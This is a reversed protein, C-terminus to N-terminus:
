ENASYVVKLAPRNGAEEYESSYVHIWLVRPASPADNALVLFGNNKIEKSIWKRVPDTVVFSFTDGTNETKVSGAISREYDADVAIAGKAWAHGGDAMTWTAGDATPAM